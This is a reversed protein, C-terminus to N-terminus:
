NLNFAPKQQKIPRIKDPQLALLGADKIKTAGDGLLLSNFRDDKSSYKKSTLYGTVSNYAYWMNLNGKDLAERQGIGVEAYNLVGELINKKRTSLVDTKGKQLGNIEEDTMFINGIYNFFEEKSIKNCKMANYAAENTKSAQEILGMIQFAEKVRDQANATHRIKHSAAGKSRSLAASLTNNCVVRVNTAMATISLSGDHSNALLIYQKIEDNAGIVLPQNLKLCTFVRRGEDLSGATEISCKGTGLLEDVIALADNNQYVTYDKGLRTGLVKNVDNRLTFFSDNSVIESGDPLRHVNPHKTVDFNLGADNLADEITLPRNFVLGLGHWAPQNYSIFGAKGQSFDLKHSM